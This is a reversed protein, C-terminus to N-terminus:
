RTKESRKSHGRMSTDESPAKEVESPPIPGAAWVILREAVTAFANDLARVAEAGDATKAPVSAKFIRAAEIRGDGTVLKAGLEVEAAPSVGAVIQFRRIDLVLQYDVAMGETHRVIQGLSGNNEFSQFAYVDGPTSQLMADIRPGAHKVGYSGIAARSGSGWNWGPPKKIRHV